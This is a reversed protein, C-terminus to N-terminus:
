ALPAAIDGNPPRAHASAAALAAEAAKLSAKLGAITRRDCDAQLKLMALSEADDAASGGRGRGGHSALSNSSGFSRGLPKPSPPHDDLGDISSAASAVRPFGDPPSDPAPPLNPASRSAPLAGRFVAADGGGDLVAGYAGGFERAIKAWDGSTDVTEFAALRPGGGDDDNRIRAIFDVHPTLARLANAPAALSAALVEEPVDREGGRAARTAVRRRVLEEDADVYFLATRYHPYRLRLNELKRAYWDFDRLSGDVWVHVRQEMALEQALEALTGSERHCRTGASAADRRVYGPWEPMLQKFRDPDVHVIRRLPLIERQSMWNMVWGKGAGMAGCTFVLWPHRTPAASEGAGDARRFAGQVVGRVAADQWRQRAPSYHGHWAADLRERLPVLDGVFGASAAAGHNEHTSRSFDYDPAVTWDKLDPVAYHSVIRKLFRHRRIGALFQEVNVAPAADDRDGSNARAPAEARPSADEEDEDSAEDITLHHAHVAVDEALHGFLHRVEWDVLGLKLESVLEAFAELGMQGDELAGFREFVLELDRKDVIGRACRRSRRGSGPSRSPKAVDIPPPHLPTPTRTLPARDAM